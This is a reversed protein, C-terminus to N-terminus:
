VEPLSAARECEAWGGGLDTMESKQRVPLLLSLLPAPVKKERYASLFKRQLSSKKMRSSAPCELLEQRVEGTLHLEAM